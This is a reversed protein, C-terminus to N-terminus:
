RSGRSAAPCPARRAAARRAEQLQHVSCALLMCRRTSSRRVSDASSLSCFGSTSSRTRSRGASARATRRRSPATSPGARPRREVDAVGRDHVPLRSSSALANPLRTCCRSGSCAAVAARDREAPADVVVARPTNQPRGVGADADRGLVNRPQGLAEVADIAAARARGAAGAEAERDDLVHQQPVLGLEVDVLSSPCPCCTRRAGAPAARRARSRCRASGQLAPRTTAGAVLLQAGRPVAGQPRRARRRDARQPDRPVAARRRRRARRSAVEDFGLASLGNPM